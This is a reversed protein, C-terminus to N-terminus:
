HCGKSYIVVQGNIIEYRAEVAKCVINLKEHLNLSGLSATLPCEKLLGEDYQIEIGYAAALNAFVVSAPTEEFEFSVARNAPLVLTPESVLSKEMQLSARSFTIQQNPTLVEGSINLESLKQELLPDSKELVMVKGTKVSIRVSQSGENAEVTFSTGLVKAVLETTHVIFPKLTDREVEFFATGVLYVKRQQDKSAFDYSLKGDPELSVRSGDSLTYSETHGSQNYFVELGEQTTVQTSDSTAVVSPDQWWQRGVWLLAVFLFVAAALRRWILWSTGVEAIPEVEQIDQVRLQELMDEVKSAIHEESLEPESIQLSMVIQRAQEVHGKRDPHLEIWKNWFKQNEPSPKLVWERFSSDWVFDEARFHDYRKM